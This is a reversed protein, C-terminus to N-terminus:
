ASDFPPQGLVDALSQRAQAVQGQVQAYQTDPDVITHHLSDRVEEATNGLQRVVAKSHYLISGEQAAVQRTMLAEPTLWSELLAVAQAARRFNRGPAELIGSARFVPGVGKTYTDSARTLLSVATALEAAAQELHSPVTEHLRPIATDIAQVVETFRQLARTHHGAEDQLHSDASILRERSDELPM